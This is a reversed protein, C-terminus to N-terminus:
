EEVPVIEIRRNKQRGEDTGNDSIPDAEGFGQSTIRDQSVGKSVLYDRVADARKKSIKLNGTDSGLADTYGNVQIKLTPYAGM